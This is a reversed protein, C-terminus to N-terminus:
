FKISISVQDQLKTKLKKLHNLVQNIDFSSGTNPKKLHNLVQNINFSSGTIPKKLSNLVQNISQEKTTALYRKKTYNEIMKYRAHAQFYQM